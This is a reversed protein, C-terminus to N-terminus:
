QILEKERLPKKYEIVDKERKEVISEYIKLAEVQEEESYGFWNYHKSATFKAKPKADKTRIEFIGFDDIKVKKTVSAEKILNFIEEYIATLDKKNIEPFKEMLDAVIATKTYNEKKVESM